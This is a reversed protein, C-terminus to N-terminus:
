QVGAFTGARIGDLQMLSEDLILLQLLGEALTEDGTGYAKVMNAIATRSLM